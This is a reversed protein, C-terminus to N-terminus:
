TTRKRVAGPEEKVIIEPAKNKNGVSSLKRVTLAAALVAAVGITESIIVVAHSVALVGKRTEALDLGAWLTKVLWPDTVIMEGAVKGLILAGIWIVIPFREMLRSIMTSAFVVLPISLGLGFLLLGLNGHSAGAVALINDLSMTFDAVVIMWVAGWVSGAGKSKKCGEDCDGLLKVAIWFILVGGVLKVFSIGLLQSAFFTFAVRLVVAALAGFMIGRFRQKKPLSQVAM